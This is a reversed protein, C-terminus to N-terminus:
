AAGGFMDPQWHGDLRGQAKAHAGPDMEAGIIRRNLSRAATLINGWGACPDCVVMGPDSYDRVIAECLWRPKGRGGAMEPTAPGHYGGPLSRWIGKANPATSLRLARRRAVCLHLTWSAPGDGQIRVGMGSIVVGVDAFTQLGAREYAAQYAHVLDDSTLCAMWCRVRPAWSAVFADVDAATWHQYIVAERDAGDNGDEEDLAGAHTREGYPPDTIIADCEVDALVDEWRGLHIV